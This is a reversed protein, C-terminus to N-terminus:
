IVQEFIRKLKISPFNALINFLGHRIKDTECLRENDLSVSSELRSLLFLCNEVAHLVLQNLQETNLFKKLSNLTNIQIMKDFSQCIAWCKAILTLSESTHVGESDSKFQPTKVLRGALQILLQIAQIAFKSAFEQIDQFLINNRHVLEAVSIIVSHVQDADGLKLSNALFFTLVKFNSDLEDIPIENQLKLMGQIVTHSCVICFGGQKEKDSVSAKSWNQLLTKTTSVTYDLDAKTEPTALKIPGVDFNKDNIIKTTVKRYAEM